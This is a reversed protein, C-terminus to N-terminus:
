CRNRIGFCLVLARRMGNAAVDKSSLMDLIGLDFGQKEGLIAGRFYAYTGSNNQRGVRVIRQGKCGPVNIGLDSWHKIQGGRGFVAALQSFTISTLPNDKHLYVALADYGVIHEVPQLGLRGARELEYTDIRRSSNAIDALGTLLADLGTGSGGGGVSVTVEPELQDYAEAWAQAVVFLTDSGKTRIVEDAASVSQCCITLCAVTLLRYIKMM